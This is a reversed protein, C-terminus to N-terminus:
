WLIEVAALGLLCVVNVSKIGGPPIMKVYKYNTDFYLGVKFRNIIKYCNQLGTVINWAFHKKSAM